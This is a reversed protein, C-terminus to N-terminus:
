GILEEYLPYIKKAESFNVLSKEKNGLCSYALGTLHFVEFFNKEIKQLDALVDLVRENNGNKYLVVAKKYTTNASSFSYPLPGMLEEKKLSDADIQFNFAEEKSTDISQMAICREKCVPPPTRRLHKLRLNRYFPGNWVDNFSNYKLNGMFLKDFYCCAFVTGHWGVICTNDIWKCFSKEYDIYNDLLKQEALPIMSEQFLPTHLFEIGSNKAIKIAELHMRDSLKKQFFLSKKEFNSKDYFMRHYAVVTKIELNSALEILVPLDEINEKSLITTFNLIPKDTKESRKLSNLKQINGTLKEISFGRIKRFTEECAGDISITIGLPNGVFKEIYKDLLVGNTCFAISFGRSNLYDYMVPFNEATLPEGMSSLSISTSQDLEGILDFFMRLDFDGYLMRFHSQHCHNCKLNCRNTSEICLTEPMKWHYLESFYRFESTLGEM